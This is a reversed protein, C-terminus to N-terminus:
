QDVVLVHEKKWAVVASIDQWPRKTRKAKGGRLFRVFDYQRTNNDVILTLAGVVILPISAFLLWRESILAVQALLLGSLIIASGNIVMYEFPHHNKSLAPASTEPVLNEAKTCFVLTILAISVLMSM